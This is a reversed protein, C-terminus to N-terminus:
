GGTELYESPSGSCSLFLLKVARTAAVHFLSRENAVRLQSEVPDQSRLAGELPVVGRNLGAMFVAKFELGKVRHMTALRM